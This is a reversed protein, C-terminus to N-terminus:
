DTDSTNHVAHKGMRLACRSQLGLEGLMAPSTAVPWCASAFPDEAAAEALGTHQPVVAAAVVM